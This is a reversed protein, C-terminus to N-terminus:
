APTAEPEFTAEAAEAAAKKAARKATWRDQFGVWIAYALPVIFLTLLTSTTMGGIIGIAMPARFDGGAGLGLAVPIMGAILSIATMLIPRLRIPGAKRMAQDATAGRKREQNAFDVLLISNKTALGMLMIFGIMATMDLPNGTLVLALIAGIIALPMSIMIIGPQTFSGFQSALVMYVFIISLGLSLFLDGFAEAQMALQGGLEATTGEPMQIAALLANVDTLVEGEGRGSYNAGITVTPQRNSRSITTPGTSLEATAVNRLPVLQGTPTMLKYNLVDELNERDAEQLRVRIDAEEGEGRYTSAVDGTLLTRITAGVFASSLGYQAAREHDVEVSMEPKGTRYSHEIDTLGPIKSLENVVHDIGAGLNKSSGNTSKVELVIDRGALGGIGFSFAGGSEQFSLGSFDPFGARVEDLVARTEFGDKVEVLFTAEESAGQRGVTTFVSEIEPYSLIGEEIVKAQEDTVELRTGAPLILSATFQGEDINALLTQNVFPFSLMSIGIIITSVVVTIRKHNLTWNLLSGYVRYMWGQGAEEEIRVDDIVIGM